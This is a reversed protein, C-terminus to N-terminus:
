SGSKQSGGQGRTLAPPSGSIARSRPRDCDRRRLPRHHGPPGAAPGAPEGGPAPWAVGSVPSAKLSVRSANMQADRSAVRWTADSLSSTDFM